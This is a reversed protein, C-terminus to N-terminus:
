FSKQELLKLLYKGYENQKLSKAAAEVQSADIYGLRFAIEEPCSIKLGQRHQIIEVFNAAEM